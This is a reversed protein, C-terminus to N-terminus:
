SVATVATKGFGGRPIFFRNRFVRHRRYVPQINFFLNFSWGPFYSGTYYYPYYGDYMASDVPCANSSDAYVSDTNAPSQVYGPDYVPDPQSPFLTRNCSALAATILVLQIKKSKKM